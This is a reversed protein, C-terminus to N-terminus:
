DARKLAFGLRPFHVHVTGAHADIRAITFRQATAAVLEGMSAEVGFKEATIAVQTGLDIGHENVFVADLTAPTSQAALEIAAQPSLDSRLAKGAASFTQMRALWPRLNPTADLIGAMQPVRTATFWLPHYCAFDALTPAAGFLYDQMGLLSAIRQLYLKYAGTADNPRQRAMGGFMTSRDDAFAKGAQAALEPTLNAFLVAAGKFNHGMAAWFLADDAWQAITDIAGANGAAVISPLPRAADIVQV